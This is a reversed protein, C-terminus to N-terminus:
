FVNRVTEAQQVVVSPAKKTEITDLKKLNDNILKSAADKLDSKVAKKMKSVEVRVVALINEAITDNSSARPM